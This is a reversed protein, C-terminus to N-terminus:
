EIVVLQGVQGIAYQEDFAQILQKHQCDVALFVIDCHHEHIQVPQLDDVVAHAAFGAVLQQLHDSSAQMVANVCGIHQRAYMAIFERNKEAFDSMGPIGGAYRLVDQVSKLRDDTYNIGSGLPTKFFVLFRGEDEDPVFTKGVNAFFYGSSLVILITAVVVKWRHNLAFDLMHRYFNDLKNFMRELVRYIPGHEKNVTLYRSCLMPTLTLSVFM